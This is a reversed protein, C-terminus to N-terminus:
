WRLFIENYVEIVLVETVLVIRYYIPPCILIQDAEKTRGTIGIGTM